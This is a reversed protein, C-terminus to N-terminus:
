FVESLLGKFSILHETGDGKELLRHGKSLFIGIYIPCSTEGRTKAQYYKCRKKYEDQPKCVCPGM